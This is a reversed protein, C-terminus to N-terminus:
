GGDPAVPVLLNRVSDRVILQPSIATTLAPRDPTRARDVLQRVGLVGMLVKDVHMTTLPPNAEQALDIDDFGIISLDEPVRRGLELAANLVGMAVDDNCAFIATLQPARTLLRLAAPYGDLRTLPSDEIYVEAIDYHQLARLYGQRRELVSPYAGPASGVLGICTHGHELLYSVATYAGDFNDIVVSDFPQGLMYADVLVIPLGAGAGIEAVTDELFTGGMLLGDVKRETLMLPLATPRNQADVEISAVMLSLNRRRCEREAGALVHSYFPDVGGPDDQSHKILLGIVALPHPAPMAVRVARQYGLSAAANLVRARTQPAVGVKNSLAQSATGLSVGAERAVDRLTPRSM